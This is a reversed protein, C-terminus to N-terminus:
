ISMRQNNNNSLIPRTAVDGGNSDSISILFRLAFPRRSDTVDVAELVDVLVVVNLLLEKGVESIVGVDVEVLVIVDEIVEVM